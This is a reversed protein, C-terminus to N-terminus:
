VYYDNKAERNHRLTSIYTNVVGFIFAVNETTASYQPAVEYGSFLIIIVSTLSIIAWVSSIAMKFKPAVLYPLQVCVAGSISGALATVIYRVYFDYSSFWLVPLEFFAKLIPSIAVSSVIITPLLLVWRLLYSKPSEFYTILTM